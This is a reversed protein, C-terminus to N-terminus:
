CGVGMGAVGDRAADIARDLDLAFIFQGFLSGNIYHYSRGITNSTFDM